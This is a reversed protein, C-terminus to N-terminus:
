SFSAERRFGPDMSGVPESASRHTGGKAPVGFQATTTTQRPSREGEARAVDVGGM